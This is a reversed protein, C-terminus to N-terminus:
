QMYDALRQARVLQVEECHTGISPQVTATEVALCIELGARAAVRLAVNLANLHMRINHMMTEDETVNSDGAV